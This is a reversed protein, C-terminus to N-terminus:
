RAWKLAFILSDHENQFDFKWALDGHYNFGWTSGLAGFLEECWRITEDLPNVPKLNPIIVVHFKFDTDSDNYM